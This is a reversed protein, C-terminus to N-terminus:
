RGKSHSGTLKALESILTSAPPPNKAVVLRCRWVAGGDRDTVLIHDGDFALDSPTSSGELKWTYTVIAAPTATVDLESPAATPGPTEAPAIVNGYPEFCSLGQSGRNAVWIHQGDFLVGGPDNGVKIPVGSNGTFPDYSVVFGQNEQTYTVWLRNGDFAVDSYLIPTSPDSTGVSLSVPVGQQNWRLMGVQQPSPAQLWSPVLWPVRWFLVALFVLLVLLAAVLIMAINLYRRPRDFLNIM